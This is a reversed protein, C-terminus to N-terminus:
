RNYDKFTKILALIAVIIIVGVSVFINMLWEMLDRRRRIMYEEGFSFSAVIDIAEKDEM